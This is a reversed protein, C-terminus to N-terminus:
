SLGFVPVAADSALFLVVDVLAEPQVWKTFDASPMADRNAPTDITGPLVCNVNIGYGKVESSISETLRVVATKSVSYAAMNKPGAFAARAGISVIKGRRQGIMHPLVARCMLFVSRANLNLMFDWTDLSTEHVPEGARFGGAINLLVDIRGCSQVAERVM